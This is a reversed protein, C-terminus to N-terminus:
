QKIYCVGTMIVSKTGNRIYIRLTGDTRIQYAGAYEVTAGDAVIGWIEEKPRAEITGIVLWSTPPTNVLAVLINGVVIGNREHIEDSLSSVVGSVPTISVLSEKYSSNITSTAM